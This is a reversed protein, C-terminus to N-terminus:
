AAVLQHQALYATAAEVLHVLVDALVMRLVVFVSSAEVAADAVTGVFMVDIVIMVVLAPHREDSLQFAAKMWRVHALLVVEDLQVISLLVLHLTSAVVVVIVVLCEIDVVVALVWQWQGENREVTRRDQRQGNRDLGHPIPHNNVSYNRQSGELRGEM